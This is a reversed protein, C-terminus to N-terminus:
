FPTRVNQLYKKEFFHLPINNKHLVISLLSQDHRHEKFEQANKNISPSDTINEYNCAMELWTSIINLTINTKRCVICGAWCDLVNEKFIKDYMGYKLIVDMKCWNKMFNLGTNPKNKWVAIDKDKLLPEFLNDFKELFYYKSDLYFVIDGEEVNKLAELIIYPKWLWYGGGRKLNLINKYKNYFSSDMKSRDFIYIHFQPGYQKISQILKSIYPRHTGDDYLIFFYKM